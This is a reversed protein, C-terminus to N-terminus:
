TKQEDIENFSFHNLGKLSGVIFIRKRHQPIGFDQPSYVEHDVEYGLKALESGYIEM